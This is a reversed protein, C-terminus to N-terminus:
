TEVLRPVQHPADPRRLGITRMFQTLVMLSVLIRRFGSGFTVKVFLLCRFYDTLGEASPRATWFRREAFNTLITWRREVSRQRACPSNLSSTLWSMM